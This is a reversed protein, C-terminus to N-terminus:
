KKVLKDRCRHTAALNPCRIRIRSGVNPVFLSYTTPSELKEIKSFATTGVRPYIKMRIGLVKPIAKLRALLPIASDLFFELSAYISFFSKSLSPLLYTLRKPLNKGSLKCFLFVSRFYLLSFNGFILFRPDGIGKKM